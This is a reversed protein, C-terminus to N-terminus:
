KEFFPQHCLHSPFCTDRFKVGDAFSFIGGKQVDANPNKGVFYIDRYKGLDVVCNKNTINWDQALLVFRLRPLIALHSHNKSLWNFLVIDIGSYLTSLTWSNKEM